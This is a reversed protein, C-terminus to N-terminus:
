SYSNGPESELKEIARQYYYNVPPHIKKWPEVDIEEGKMICNLVYRFILHFYYSLFSVVWSVHYPNEGLVTGSLLQCIPSEGMAAGSSTM